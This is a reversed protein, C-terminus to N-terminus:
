INDEHLGMLDSLSNVNPDEVIRTLYDLCVLIIMFGGKLYQTIRLYYTSAFNGMNPVSIAFM